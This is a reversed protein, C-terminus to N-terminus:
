TQQELPTPPWHLGYEQILERAVECRRHYLYLKNASLRNLVKKFLYAPYNKLLRYIYSTQEVITKSQLIQEFIAAAHNNTMHALIKQPDIPKSLHRSQNDQIFRDLNQRAVNLCLEQKQLRTMRQTAQEDYIRWTALIQPLYIIDTFLGLRM